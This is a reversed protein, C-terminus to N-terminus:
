AEAEKNQCSTRVKHWETVAEKLHTYDGDSHRYLIHDECHVCLNIGVEDYHGGECEADFLDNCRYCQEFHDPILHFKEHLVKLIDYLEKTQKLNM